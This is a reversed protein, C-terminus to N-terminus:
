SVTLVNNSYAKLFFMSQEYCTNEDQYRGPPLVNCWDAAHYRRSRRRPRKNPSDLDFFNHFRSIYLVTFCVKDLLKTKGTDVHGLICCIPSRLDDKSRAALAAERVKARREAAEAKKQAAQKQTQTLEEDSSSDSDSDDESDSGSSDSDSDEESSSEDESEEAPPATKSSATKSPVAKSPPVKSAPATKSPPVKGAPKQAAQGECLLDANSKTPHTDQEGPTSKKENSVLTPAPAPTPAEEKEEDSSADWSDKLSEVAAPKAEEDSSADWDDKQEDETAAAAPAAETPPATTAPAEPTRPRSEPAPSADKAVPGKKKRNGYVVKKPAGTGSGSSQLGEIQVGSALLAQKRIEAM